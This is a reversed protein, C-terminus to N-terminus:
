TVSTVTYVLFIANCILISVGKGQGPKQKKPLSASSDSNWRLLQCSLRSSPKLQVCKNFASRSQLLPLCVQMM